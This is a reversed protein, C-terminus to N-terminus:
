QNNQSNNVIMKMRNKEDNSIFGKENLLESITILLQKRVKEADMSDCVKRM